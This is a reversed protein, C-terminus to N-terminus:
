EDLDLVMHVEDLLRGDVSMAKPETGWARFGVREYLRQAGPAIASVSLYIQVVGELTRGHDIAAQMMRTGLGHGRASPAVYVGWICARHLTKVRQERFIGVAGAISDGEFAGMIVSHPAQALRARAVEVSSASDDEPSALFSHPTDVLMERRLAFWSEADAPDLLRIITGM